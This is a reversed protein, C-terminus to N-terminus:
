NATSVPEKNLLGFYNQWFQKQAELMMKSTKEQAEIFAKVMEQQLKLTTEFTDSVNVEMTAKPLSELWSNFFKKQWDLLQKQYEEFFTTDM